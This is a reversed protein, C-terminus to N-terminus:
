PTSPFAPNGGANGGGCPWVSAAMPGLDTPVLFLEDELGFVLTGDPALLMRTMIGKEALDKDKWLTRKQLSADVVRLKGHRWFAVAGERNVVPYTTYYGKLHPGKRVTGDPELVSFHMRSPLRNEMEVGRVEGQQTVVAEAHSPWHRVERGDRDYQFLDFAGYGQVGLLLEGQGVHAVNAEPRAETAWLARGAAWDLCFTRGLGSSLEFYRALLRDGSLLLPEGRRAPQWDRPQWPKMPRPQWGSSVGMEVVGPYAVAEAPLTTSWAVRGSDDLRAVRGQPRDSSPRHFAAVFGGPVLLFSELEEGPEAPVEVTALVKGDAGVRTLTRGEGLWASGDEAVRMQRRPVSFPYRAPGALDLRGRPRGQLDLCLLGGAGEELRVLLYLLDAGALAVDM